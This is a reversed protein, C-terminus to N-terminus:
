VAMAHGNAFNNTADKGHNLLHDRSDFRVLARHQKELLTESNSDVLAYLPAASQRYPIYKNAVM